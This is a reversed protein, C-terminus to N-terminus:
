RAWAVRENATLGATEALRGAFDGLPEAGHAALDRLATVALRLDDRQVTVLTGAAADPVQSMAHEIRDLLGEASNAWRVRSEANGTPDDEAEWRQRSAFERLAETLVFYTDDAAMLDFTVPRAERDAKIRAGAGIDVPEREWVTRCEPCTRDEAKTPWPMLTTCCTFTSETQDTHDHPITM